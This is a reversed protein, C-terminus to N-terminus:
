DAAAEAKRARVIAFYTEIAKLIRKAKAAPYKVMLWVVLDSDNKSNNCGGTGHCLPIMNDAVTGPCNPSALAIFHDDALTWFFGEQNGCVACAHHWYQLMFEREALTFTDPLARLRARRRSATIRVSALNNARWVVWQEPHEAYRLRSKLNYKAGHKIRQARSRACFKEPDQTREIRKAELLRARNKNYRIQAQARLKDGDTVRRQRADAAKKAADKAYLRRQNLTSCARCRSCMGDARASETNFEDWVKSTECYKCFKEPPVYALFCM